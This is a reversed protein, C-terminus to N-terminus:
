VDLGARRLRAVHNKMSRWDSPTSPSVVITLGDPAFWKLHGGNGPKIQWGAKTAVRILRTIEDMM